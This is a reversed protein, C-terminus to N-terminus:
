GKGGRASPRQRSAKPRRGGERHPESPEDQRAAGPGCGNSEPWTRPADPGLAVVRIEEGFSAAYLLRRTYSNTVIVSLSVTDSSVSDPSGVRDVRAAPVLLALCRPRKPDNTTFAGYIAVDDGREINGAVVPDASVSIAIKRQRPGVTPPLVLMGEQLFSGEQLPAPPVRGEIEALSSYRTEPAWIAPVRRVEVMDETLPEYPVADATLELVPVLNGVKAEVRATYGAVLVLAGGTGVLGAAVFAVGLRRRRNM